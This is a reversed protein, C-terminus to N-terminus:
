WCRCGRVSHDM